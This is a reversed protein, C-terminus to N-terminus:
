ALRFAQGRGARVSEILGGEILQDLEKKAVNRPLSFEDQVAQLAVTGMRRMLRLIKQQQQSLTGAALTTPVVFAFSKPVALKVDKATATVKLTKVDKALDKMVSALKKSGDGSAEGFVAAAADAMSLAKPFAVVLERLLSEAERSSFTVPKGTQQYRQNQVDVFLEYSAPDLWALRETGLTQEGKATRVHSRDRPPLALAEMSAILMERQHPTANTLASVWHERRERAADKEGAVSALAEGFRYMLALTGASVQTDKLDRFCRAAADPRGRRLLAIGTLVIARIRVDRIELKEAQESVKPGLKVAGALDGAVVLARVHMEAAHLSGVEDGLRRLGQMAEKSLTVAAKAEGRALALRAQMEQSLAIARDHKIQKALTLAEDAREQALDLDAEEFAAQAIRHLTLAQERKNGGAALLKLAEALQAQAKKVDGRRMMLLASERLFVAVRPGASARDLRELADKLIAEADDFRGLSMLVRVYQARLVDAINPNGAEDWARVVDAYVKAAEDNQGRGALLKARAVDLYRQLRRNGAGMNAEVTAILKAAHGLDGVDLSVWADALEAISIQNRDGSLAALEHFRKFAVRAAEFEGVERYLDGIYGNSAAARYLDGAAEYAKASLQAEKVADDLRGSTAYIRALLRRLEAERAPEKKLRGLLAKVLKEADIVKDLQVMSAAAVAAAPAMLDPDANSKKLAEYDKIVSAHDGAHAHIDVLAALARQKTWPDREEALKEMDDRVITPAGQRMRARASLLRLRRELPGTAPTSAIAKLYAEVFGLDCVPEWGDALIDVASQADGAKALIEAARLILPPENRERGREEFSKAIVKADAASLQLEGSLHTAVLDHVVVDGEIVDVLNRKICTAVSPGFVKIATEKELVQGIRAIGLLVEREKPDIRNNFGNDNDAMLAKFANVSRASQTDLFTKPPLGGGKLALMYKLTLPHAVCGGRAADHLLAELPEGSIKNATAIQGPGRRNRDVSRRSRSADRKQRDGLAFTDGNRMAGIIRAAPRKGRSSRVLALLEERRLNQLDDLVVATKTQELTQWLKTYPDSARDRIVSTPRKLRAEIRALISVM